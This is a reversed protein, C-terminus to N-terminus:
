AKYTKRIIFDFPGFMIRWSAGFWGHWPTCFSQLRFLLPIRRLRIWTVPNLHHFSFLGYRFSFGWNGINLAIQQHDVYWRKTAVSFMRGNKRWYHLAARDVSEAVSILMLVCLTVFFTIM